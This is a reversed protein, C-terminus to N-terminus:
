IFRFSLRLPAFDEQDMREYAPPPAMFILSYIHTGHQTVCLDLLYTVGGQVINGRVQQWSAGGFTITPESQPTTIGLRTEEQSIYQALSQANQEAMSLTVQGTQSSDAFHVSGQAQNLSATWGQPYSLSIGLASNQFTQYPQAIAGGSSSQYYYVFAGAGIALILVVLLAVRLPKVRKKGPKVPAAATEVAPRAPTVPPPTPPAFAPPRQPAAPPQPRAMTNGPSSLPGQAPASLGPREFVSGAQSPPNPVRGPAAPPSLPTGPAQAAHLPPASGPRYVGPSSSPNPVISASAPRAERQEQARGQLPQPAVPPLPSRPGAQSAPMPRTPLDEIEEQSATRKKPAPTSAREVTIAPPQKPAEPVTLPITPLDEVGREKVEEQAKESAQQTNEAAAPEPEPERVPRSLAQQGVGSGDAVTEVENEEEEEFVAAFPSHEIAPAPGPEIEKKEIQVQPYQITPEQEWVKVRLERRASDKPSEEAARKSETQRTVAGEPPVAQAKESPPAPPKNEAARSPPAPIFPTPEAQAEPVSAQEQRKRLRDLEERWGPLVMTSLEEVPQETPPPVEESGHAPKSAAERGPVAPREAARQAEQATLRVPRRALRSSQPASVSQERQNQAIRSSRSARELRISELSPPPESRYIEKPPLRVKIVGPAM